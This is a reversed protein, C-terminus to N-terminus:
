ILRVSLLFITFDTATLSELGQQAVKRTIETPTNLALTPLQHEKAFRLIPAYFSWDYGWRQRYESQSQFEVETLQGALYADIVSQFPRQVMELGLALQKKEQYLAQIIAIQAQHDSPRDHTEGLYIVQAQAIKKIWQSFSVQETTSVTPIQPSNLSNIPTAGVVSGPWCLVLILFLRGWAQHSRSM